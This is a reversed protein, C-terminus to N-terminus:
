TRPATEPPATMATMALAGIPSSFSCAAVGVDSDGNLDGLTQIFGSSFQINDIGNGTEPNVTLFIVAASMIPVEVSPILVIDM